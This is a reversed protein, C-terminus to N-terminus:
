GEAEEGFVVLPMSICEEHGRVMGWLVTCVAM